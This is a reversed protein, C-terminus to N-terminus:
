GGGGTQVLKRVSGDPQVEYTTGDRMEVRSGPEHFSVMGRGDSGKYYIKLSKKEDERKELAKDQAVIGVDKGRFQNRRKSM